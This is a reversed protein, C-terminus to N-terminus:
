TQAGIGRFVLPDNKAAGQCPACRDDAQGHLLNM